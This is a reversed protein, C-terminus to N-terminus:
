RPGAGCLREVTPRAAEPQRAAAAQAATCAEGALGLQGAIEALALQSEYRSPEAQVARHLAARAEFLNGEGRRRLAQAHQERAYAALDGTRRRFEDAEARISARQEDDAAEQVAEEYRQQEKLVHALNRRAPVDSFTGAQADITARLAMEARFFDKKYYYATAFCFLTDPLQPSVAAAKECEQLARDYDGRGVYADSLKVHDLGDDAYRFFTFPANAFMAAAGTVALGSVLRRADGARWALWLASAGQGAFIALLPVAPIRYRDSVFFAVVSAAYAVLAGLLLVVDPHRRRGADILVAVKGWVALPLIVALGLSARLVDIQRRAFDYSINLPPEEARFFTGLKQLTLKLAAAPEGAMWALGERFWFSSAERADLSRRARRSAEAISSRVQDGPRDAVNPVHTYRGHAEPGNGIYFNIGGNVPFPSPGTGRHWSRLSFPALLVVAGSVLWALHRWSARRVWWGILPLLLIGNPRSLLFLGIALGPALWTNARRGKVCVLAALALMLSFISLTVPLVTAAYFVATGYLAYLGAATLGVADSFVRSAVWYTLAVIALELLIQLAVIGARAAPPALESFPALLFAYPPNLYDFGPDDFRGAAVAQALARYPESDLPVIDGVPHRFYAVTFVARLLLATLFVVGLWRRRAALTM